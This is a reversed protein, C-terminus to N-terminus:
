TTVQFATRRTVSRQFLKPAYYPKDTGQSRNKESQIIVQSESMAGTLPHEFNDLDTALVTEKNWNSQLMIFMIIVSMDMMSPFYLELMDDWPKLPYRILEKSGLRNWRFLMLQVINDCDGKSLLYTSSYTFGLSEFPVDMPYGNAVM